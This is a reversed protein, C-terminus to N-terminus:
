RRVLRIDLRTDGDIRVSATTKDYGTKEVSVSPQSWYLGHIAYSGNRDTFAERWGGGAPGSVLLYVWAGDVPSTGNASTETVVGSLTFSGPPYIETRNAVLRGDVIELDILTGPNFHGYDATLYARRVGERTGFRVEFWCACVPEANIVDGSMHFGTLATDEDWILHGDRDFQVVHDDVDRVDTTTFGTAAETFTHLGAIFYTFPVPSPASAGDANIVVISATGAAHAPMTVQLQASSVFTFNLPVGSLTVLAERQFGTGNISVAIGGRTSGTSPQIGTVSLKAPSPAVPPQVRECGGISCAVALLGAWALHRRFM